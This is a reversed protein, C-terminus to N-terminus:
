KLNNSNQFTAVPRDALQCFPKVGAFSSNVPVYIQQFFNIKEEFLIEIIAIEDDGRIIIWALGLKRNFFCLEDLFEDLRTRM